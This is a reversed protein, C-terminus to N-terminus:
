HYRTLQGVEPRICRFLSLITLRYLSNEGSITQTERVQDYRRGCLICYLTPALWTQCGLRDTLAIVSNSDCM